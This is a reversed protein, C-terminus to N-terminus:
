NGTAQPRVVRWASAIRGITGRKAIKHMVQRAATRLMEHVRANLTPRDIALPL